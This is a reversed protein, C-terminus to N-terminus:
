PKISKNIFLSFALPLDTFIIKAIHKLQEQVYMM